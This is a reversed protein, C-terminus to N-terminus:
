VIKYGMRRMSTYASYLVVGNVSSMEKISEVLAAFAKAASRGRGFAHCRTKEKGEVTTVEVIIELDGRRAGLYDAIVHDPLDEGSYNRCNEWFEVVKDGDALLKRTSVKVQRVTKGEVFETVDSKKAEFFNKATSM